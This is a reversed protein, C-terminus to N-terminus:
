TYLLLKKMNLRCKKTKELPCGKNSQYLFWLNKLTALEDFTYEEVSEDANYGLAKKMLAKKIKDEENM